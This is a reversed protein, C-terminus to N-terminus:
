SVVTEPNKLDEIWIENAKAVVQGVCPFIQDRRTRTEVGHPYVRWMYLAAQSRPGADNSPIGDYRLM